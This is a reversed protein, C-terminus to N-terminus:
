VVISSLLSVLMASLTMSTAMGMVKAILKDVYRLEGSGDSMNRTQVIYNSICCSVVCPRTVSLSDKPMLFIMSHSFKLERWRSSDTVASTNFNQWTRNLFTREVSMELQSRKSSVLTCQMFADWLVNSMFFFKGYNFVDNPSELVIPKATHHVVEFHSGGM